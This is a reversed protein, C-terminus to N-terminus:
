EAFSICTVAFINHHIIIIVKLTVMVDEAIIKMPLPPPLKEDEIFDTLSALSSMLMTLDVNKVAMELYGLDGSASSSLAAAPGSEYRVKIPAESLPPLDLDDERNM